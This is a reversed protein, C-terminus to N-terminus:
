PACVAKAADFLGGFVKTGRGKPWAEIKQGMIEGGLVVTAAFRYATDSEKLSSIPNKGDIVDLFSQTIEAWVVNAEDGSANGNAIGTMAFRAPLTFGGLLANVTPPLDAQAMREKKFADLDGDEIAKSTFAGSEKYYQCMAASQLYFNPNSSKKSGSPASIDVLEEVNSAPGSSRVLSFAEKLFKDRSKDAIVEPKDKPNEKKLESYVAGVNAIVAETFAKMRSGDVRMYVDQTYATASAGILLLLALPKAVM